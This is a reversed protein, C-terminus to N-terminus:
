VKLHRPVFALEKFQGEPLIEKAIADQAPEELHPLKIGLFKLMMAQIDGNILACSLRFSQGLLIQKTRSGCDLRSPPEKNQSTHHMFEFRIVSTLDCFIFQIQQTASSYQSCERVLINTIQNIIM